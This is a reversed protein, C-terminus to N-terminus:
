TTCTPQPAQAFLVNIDRKLEILRQDLAKLAAVQAQVQLRKAEIGENALELPFRNQRNKEEILTGLESLKFGASQAVRIIRVIDVHHPTYFRYTGRRGPEPLLGLSEYLRIAKPTCGTLEAIRGIYM